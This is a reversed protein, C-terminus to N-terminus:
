SKRACRAFNAATSVCGTMTTRSWTCGASPLTNSRWSFIVLVEPTEFEEEENAGAPRPHVTIEFALDMRTARKVQELYRRLEAAVGQADLKGDHIFNPLM